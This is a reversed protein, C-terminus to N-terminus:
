PKPVYFSTVADTFPATRIKDRSLDGRALGEIDKAAQKFLAEASPQDWYVDILQNAWTEAERGNLQAPKNPAILLRTALLLHYKAPSFKRDLVGNRFLFELRYLSSAAALYVSPKHDPNLIDAPIRELVQKYNRTARHPENLVVSAFSRVLNNFPVVRTREVASNAYQKSRRELHLRRGAPATEFYTELQKMYDSTAHFQEEKIETQRNTARIIDVIVDEDETSILRLPVLVSDDLEDKKAWLVNCTQCGNVVQYDHIVFRTGIQRVSKAIITIGNNMLPFQSRRSGSLTAAIEANVPNNGGQYDRVNEYFVSNALNGDDDALLALLDKAVLYGLHSESVSEIDPLAIRNQFTFERESGTKLAQYRRQLSRADLPVFQVRSFLNLEDIEREASEARAVLDNDETWRGATAYYVTCSPNGNRFLRANGIIKQSLEANQQVVDNRTLKPQDAFFDKVGYTIQGIKSTSFASESETQIFIYHVDLTTGSSALEDIDDPDTVLAGNVVIAISDLGTDGGSGTMVYQYDIASEIQPSIVVHAVFREFDTAPNILPMGAQELFEDILARTIQDLALTGGDDGGSTLRGVEWTSAAAIQRHLM